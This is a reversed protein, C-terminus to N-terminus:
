KNEKEFEGFMKKRDIQYWEVDLKLRGLDQKDMRAMFYHIIAWKITDKNSRAKVFALKLKAADHMKQLTTM